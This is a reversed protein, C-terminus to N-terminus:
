SFFQCVMDKFGDIVHLFVYDADKLYIILVRLENDLKGLVWIDPQRISFPILLRGTYVPLNKKDAKGYRDL